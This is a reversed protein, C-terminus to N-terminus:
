TQQYLTAAKKCPLCLFLYFVGEGYEEWDEFAVQGLFPMTQQCVPCLPYEADQIWEPHGGLQSVGNEDMLFRGVAEFPTQRASGPILPEPFEVMEGDEPIKHLLAPKKGNLQSWHAEGTLTMDLYTTAYFSCRTCVALRLREGEASIWRCRPDRLDLDLLRRLPRQCWACGGLETAQEVEVERSLEAQKDKILEFCTTFYLDRRGGAQTLEWGAERAYDEPPIFLESRWDPPQIRWAHFQKQVTDSGIWALAMLLANRRTEAPTDILSVLQQCTKEDAGLYLYGPYFHGGAVLVPLLPLLAGPVFLNIQALLFLVDRDEENQPAYRDWLRQCLTQAEELSLTHLLQIFLPVQEQWTRLDQILVRSEALAFLTDITEM